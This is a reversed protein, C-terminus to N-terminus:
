RTLLVPVPPSTLAGLRATLLYSGAPVTRRRSPCGPASTRGAWTVTFALRDGPRLLRIDTGPPAYCDSSSWFRTGGDASTIVLERTARSVDRLCPLAGANAIVLSLLPHQGVRYGPREAEARVQVATDPCPLPAPPPPPPAPPVPLGAGASAPAGPPTTSPSASSPSAGSRPPAPRSSPPQMARAQGAPVPVRDAAGVLRGVIWALLVIAAACAAGAVVRRRLYVGPPLPGSATM